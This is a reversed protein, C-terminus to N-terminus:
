ERISVPSADDRYWIDYNVAATPATTPRFTGKALVQAAVAEQAPVLSTGFTFTSKTLKIFDAVVRSTVGFVTSAAAALQVDITGASFAGTNALNTIVAFAETGMVVGAGGPDTFTETRTRGDAGTGTVVVNGGDWTASFDVQLNRPYDPQTIGAATNFDAAFQAHVNTGGVTPCLFTEHKARAHGPIAADVEAWTCHQNVGDISIMGSSGTLTPASGSTIKVSSNMTAFLGFAGNGTGTVVGTMEVSSGDQVQIGHTTANEIIADKIVIHSGKSVLLNVSASSDLKTTAYGVSNGIYVGPYATCGAMTCLGKFRSGQYFAYFASDIITTKGLSSGYITLSNLKMAFFTTDSNFGVGGISGTPVLEGFTISGDTVDHRMGYLAVSGDRFAIPTATTATITIHSLYRQGISSVSSIYMKSGALTFRQMILSGGGTCDLYLPSYGVSSTLLTKPQVFDFKLGGAGPDVAFNKVPYIDAASNIQVMQVDGAAAGDIIKVFMGKYADAVLGATSETIKTVGTGAGTLWHAGANDDVTTWDEEGSIFLKAGSMVHKSVCVSGFESSTGACHLVSDHAIIDPLISLAKEWTKVPFAASLGDNADDDGSTFHVYVHSEQLTMSMRGNLWQEFVRSDGLSSGMQGDLAGTPLHSQTLDFGSM